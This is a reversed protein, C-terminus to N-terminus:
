FCRFCPIFVNETAQDEWQLENWWSEDGRIVVKRGKASNSDLPLKKLQPCNNVKIEKLHSLPLANWYISQLTPLAELVLIGLRPFPNLSRMMEPVEGSQRFSFIEEMEACRLIDITQLNPALLLWSLNRLKNCDSIVVYYLSRFSRFERVNRINGASTIKLEELYECSRFGLSELNEINALRLVNMSRSDELSELRLHRIYSQLKHYSLFRQLSYSSRFNIGLITLNEM